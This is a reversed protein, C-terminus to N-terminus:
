KEDEIGYVEKLKDNEDELDQRREILDWGLEELTKIRDKLYKIQSEYGETKKLLKLLEKRKIKM